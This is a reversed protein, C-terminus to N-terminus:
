GLQNALAKWFTQRQEDFIPRDIESAGEFLHWIKNNGNQMHEAKTLIALTSDMQQGIHHLEYAQGTAPDLAALGRRMRELNTLGHEDTFKLDINRILAANNNIFQPRLGAEKCIYYQDMNAFQKIVDIPYGSERQIIAAENMTLGNLTAGKLAIAESAGGGIAGTITGWKFSESGTLAAAKLAADWDHTQIGTVIGSAVGGLLGGSVGAVTATKASMAFIMSVAPAAGGTVVSVTVCILIVGTGVAINHLIRDYTDDYDEFPQVQTTGDDGLTFVYREGSFQAELEALTFGFFVNSQSNYAIEDLYEQSIYVAQVNEVFYEDSDLSTVLNEYLDDEIYQLLSPDNMGSFEPEGEAFAAASLALVLALLLSLLRKM